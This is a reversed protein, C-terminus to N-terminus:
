TVDPLALLEDPDDISTWIAASDTHAVASYTTTYTTPEEDMEARAIAAQTVRRIRRETTGTEAILLLIPLESGTVEWGGDEFFQCYHTIRRDLAHRPLNDPVIDLFFRQPPTNKTTTLSLFADPLHSPFYSHRNMDRRTFVKLAPHRRKLLNTSRYVALTHDIFGQSAGKDKYSGKIVRDTIFDHDPLAQLTRLGKPTLFYAAPVGYLKLRKEHRMSIHGHRKLVGLKEHLSSGATIGLSEAVLQRSGFRYTYLLELIALQGPKLIFRKDTM